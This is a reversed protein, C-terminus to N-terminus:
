KMESGAALKEYGTSQASHLTTCSEMSRGPLTRVRTPPERRRCNRPCSRSRLTDVRTSNPSSHFSTSYRPCVNSWTRHRRRIRRTRRFRVLRRSWKSHSIRHASPPHPPTRPVPQHISDRSRCSWAKTAQPSNSFNHSGKSPPHCCRTPLSNM